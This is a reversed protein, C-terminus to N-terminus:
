KRGLPRQDGGLVPDWAALLWCCGDGFGLEGFWTVLFLSVCVSYSCSLLVTGSCARVQYFTKEQNIMVPFFNARLKILQYQVDPPFIATPDNGSLVPPRPLIQSASDLGLLGEAGETRPRVNRQQDEERVPAEREM